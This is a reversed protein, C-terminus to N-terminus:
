AFGSLGFGSATQCERIMREDIEWVHAAHLDVLYSWIEDTRHANDCMEVSLWWLGDVLLHLAGVESGFSVGDDGENLSNNQQSTDNDYRKEQQLTCVVLKPWALKMRQAYQNAYGVLLFLKQKVFAFFSRFFPWGCPGDCWVM